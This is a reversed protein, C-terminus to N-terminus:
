PKNSALRIRSEMSSQYHHGNWDSRWKQWRLQIQLGGLIFWITTPERGKERSQFTLWQWKKFAVSKHRWCTLDRDIPEVLYITTSRILRNKKPGVGVKAVGSVSAIGRFRKQNSSKPQPPSLSVLVSIWVVKIAWRTRPIRSDDRTEKHQPANFFSRFNFLGLATTTAIKNPRWTREATGIEGLIWIPFLAIM